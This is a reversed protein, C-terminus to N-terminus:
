SPPEKSKISFFAPLIGSGIKPFSVAETLIRNLYIQNLLFHMMIDVHM